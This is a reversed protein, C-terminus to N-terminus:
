IFSEEVEYEINEYDDEDRGIKEKALELAEKQSEAEVEVRDILTYKCTVIYENKNM